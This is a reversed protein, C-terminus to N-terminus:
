DGGPDGGPEGGSEGDPEVAREAALSAVDIMWPAPWDNTRLLADTGGDAFVVSGCFFGAEPGLLFAVLAAIDEPQGVRGLPIPFHKLLPGIIPDARQGAVLATEIMGPAIANLRVGAGAWDPGTAQRRVWRAVATKTAPYTALSGADDALRRAGDEDGALCADVVDLPVGPQCTTSNSSIAVAAGGPQGALLARLGALLEVTGFYNVSVLLSGPRASGGGLGACTVLGGLRGGSSETVGAIAQQRGERTGLDAVVGADRLDVGIVLHGDGRLRAACAAGIGSASGTIAITTL